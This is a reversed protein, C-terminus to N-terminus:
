AEAVRIEAPIPRGTAFRRRNVFVAGHVRFDTFGDIGGGDMLAVQRVVSGVEGALEPWADRLLCGAACFISREAPSWGGLGMEALGAERGPQRPAQAVARALSENLHPEPAALDIPLAACGSCRAREASRRAAELIGEVGGPELPGAGQLRYALAWLGPYGAAPDQEAVDVSARRLAGVLIRVAADEDPLWESAQPLLRM